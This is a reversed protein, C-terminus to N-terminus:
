LLYRGNEMVKKGDIWVSSDKMIGDVHTKSEWDAGTEDPYPDGFACHVTPFKEDQLLNGILKKLFTNTGLAFEGLRNSNKDTKLYEQLEKKLERNETEIANVDARSNRIKIRLPSDTMIGYKKDFFDGLLDIVMVGNAKAAATFTEGEPLNGWEGKTHYIGHCPKWRWNPNLEVVLNSGAPNTVKINRANKVAETVNMTVRHVENYDSCMGDEMIQENIRPMHGHRAYKLIENIYEMRATVEGKLTDTAWFSVNAWPTQAGIERPLKTMPRECFDELIFCKVNGPTVAEAESALAEGIASRSRDYIVLVNEGSKVNMCTRVANKAGERLTGM